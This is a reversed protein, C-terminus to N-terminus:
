VAHNVTKNILLLRTYLVLLVGILLVFVVKSALAWPESLDGRSLLSGTGGIFGISATVMTGIMARRHIREHHSLMGIGTLLLLGGILAPILATPSTAGLALFTTVGILILMLAVSITLKTLM